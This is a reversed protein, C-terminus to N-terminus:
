PATPASDPLACPSWTPTSSSSSSSSSATTCPSSYEPTPTYLQTETTTRISTSTKGKVKGDVEKMGGGSLYYGFPNLDGSDVVPIYVKVYDAGDWEAPPGTVSSDPGPADCILIMAYGTGPKASNTSEYHTLVPLCMGGKSKQYSSGASRVQAEAGTLTGFGYGVLEELAYGKFKMQVEGDRWYGSVSWNGGDYKAHIHARAVGTSGGPVIRPSGVPLVEYPAVSPDFTTLDVYGKAEASVKTTMAIKAAPGAGCASLLLASAAVMGISLGATRTRM